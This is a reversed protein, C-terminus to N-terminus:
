YLIIKLIRRFASTHLFIALMESRRKMITRVHDSSLTPPLRLGVDLSLLTLEFAAAGSFTPWPVLPLIRPGTFSCTSYSCGEGQPLTHFTSSLYFGWDMSPGQPQHREQALGLLLM